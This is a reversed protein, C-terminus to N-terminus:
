CRDCFMIVQHMSDRKISYFGNNNSLFFRIIGIKYLQAGLQQASHQTSVLYKDYQLVKIHSCYM